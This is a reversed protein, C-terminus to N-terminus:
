QHQRQAAGRVIRQQYAHALRTPRQPTAYPIQAAIDAQAQHENSIQLRRVGFPGKEARSHSSRQHRVQLHGEKQRSNAPVQATTHM